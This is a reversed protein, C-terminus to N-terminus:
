ESSMRERGQSMVEAISQTTAKAVYAQIAPVPGPSRVGRSSRVSTWCSAVRSAAAQKERRRVEGADPVREAQAVTQRTVVERTASLTSKLGAEM